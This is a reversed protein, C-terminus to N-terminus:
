GALEGDAKCVDVFDFVCQLPDTHHFRRTVRSGDPM